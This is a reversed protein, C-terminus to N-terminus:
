VDGQTRRADTSQDQKLDEDRPWGMKTAARLFGSAIRYSRVPKGKRYQTRSLYVRAPELNLALATKSIGSLVGALAQNNIIGLDARLKEDTLSAPGFELLKGLLRRQATRIRDTFETFEEATWAMGGREEDPDLVGLARVLARETRCRILRGRYEIEFDHPM